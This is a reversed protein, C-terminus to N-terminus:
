LGLNVFTKADNVVDQIEGTVLPRASDHVAVYRCADGALEVLRSLGNEVSGQREEGPNAFALQGRYSDVIPQYEPQYKPDMVLVVVPPGRNARAVM